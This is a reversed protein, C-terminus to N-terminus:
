VTLKVAAVSTGRPVAGLAPTITIVPAAAFGTIV